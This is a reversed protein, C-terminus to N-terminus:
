AKCKVFSKNITAEEIENDIESANIYVMLATDTILRAVVQNYNEKEGVGLKIGEGVLRLLDIASNVVEYPKVHKFGKKKVEIVVFQAICEALASMDISVKIELNGSDGLIKPM